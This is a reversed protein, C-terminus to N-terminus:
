RLQQRHWEWADRVQTELESRRPRWGLELSARRIDSLLVPPDGDRRPAIETPINRRTVKQVTDIVQRVSHGLGGGLNFAGFQNQGTLWKLAHVHADALDAVHVYDRICTGDPTPYDIGYIAVSDSQNLAVSLVRPILHTEPDHSEGIGSVYDAGAANFYRLIVAHFGYAAVYDRLINEVMLKSRGYPNIPRLPHDETIPVSEPLGYVAATSSYVIRSVCAQRMAELLSLTGAINNRYYKGPDMMSEGAAIHAAFHVVAAPRYHRLAHYVSETDAIDGRELPGWKVAWDHGSVMSDLTVPRYGAEALAKCTHSGIYGAGGTVLVSRVDTADEM